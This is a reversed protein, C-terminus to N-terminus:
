NAGGEDAAALEACAATEALPAAEAAEPSAPFRRTLEDLYPCADGPAGLGTMAQSLALLSAPARPGDPAASFALLYSQAAQNLQGDGQRAIGQLYLAEATLPGGAHATVLHDLKAKAPAWDQAAVLGRIEAFERAEEETPPTAVTEPEAMPPLTEASVDSPPPPVPGGGPAPAVAGQGGLDATMLAGLDCNADLECLRFEIDGIRNTGEAVVQKIRNSLQETKETVAAIQAEMANMRDIASDGGAAVFGQAGSALLQARLAQLDASVERLNAQMDALTAADVQPRAAANEAEVEAAIEDTSPIAELGQALAPDNVVVGNPLVIAEQALMPLATLAVLGLVAVASRM